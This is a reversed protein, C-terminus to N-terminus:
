PRINGISPKAIDHITRLVDAGPGGDQTATVRSSNSSEVILEDNGAGGTQRNVNSKSFNLNSARLV